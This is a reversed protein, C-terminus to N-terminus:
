HELLETRVTRKHIRVEQLRDHLDYRHVNKSRDTTRQIKDTCQQCDIVEVLRCFGTRQKAVLLNLYRIVAQDYTMRLFLGPMTHQFCRWYAEAKIRETRNKNAAQDFVHRCCQDFRINRRDCAYRGICREFELPAVEINALATIVAVRLHYTRESTLRLTVAFIGLWTFKDVIM